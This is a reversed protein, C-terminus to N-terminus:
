GRDSEPAARTLSRAALAALLLLLAVHCARVGLTASPDREIHDLHGGAHFALAVAISRHAREMVWTILVSYLPLELMGFGLEVYDFGARQPTIGYALHWLGWMLGLVLSGRVLGFRQATRPHAFGRWGFEEGVPFFFLAALAEPTVPPLLWEGPAGGLAAYLGRAGVHIAPPALLALVIWGPHTRWRGFAARRQAPTAVILTAFLPGLASLGACALAWGPPTRRELWAYTTPMALAWTIACALAYYQYLERTPSRPRDAAAELAASQMNAVVVRIAEPEVQGVVSRTAQSDVPTAAPTRSSM